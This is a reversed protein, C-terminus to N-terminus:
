QLAFSSKFFNCQFISISLFTSYVRCWNRYTMEEWKKLLTLLHPQFDHIKAIERLNQFLTFNRSNKPNKKSPLFILIKSVTQNYLNEVKCTFFAHGGEQVTIVNTTELFYPQKEIEAWSSISAARRQHRVIGTEQLKDGSRKEQRLEKLSPGSLCVFRWSLGRLWLNFIDDGLGKGFDLRKKKNKTGNSSLALNSVGQIFIQFVINTCNAMYNFTSM